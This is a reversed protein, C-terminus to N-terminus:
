RPNEKTDEIIETNGTGLAVSLPTAKRCELAEYEDLDEEKPWYHACWAPPNASDELEQLAALSEWDLGEPQNPDAAATKASAKKTTTKKKVQAKAPGKKKVTAKEAGVHAESDLLLQVMAKDNALIAVQLVNAGFDACRNPVTFTLHCWWYSALDVCYSESCWNPDAGYDELLTAAWEVDGSAVVQPWYSTPPEYLMYNKITSGYPYGAENVDAGHRVLCRAIAEHEPLPPVVM